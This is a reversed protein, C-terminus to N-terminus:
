SSKHVTNVFPLGAISLNMKTAMKALGETEVHHDFVFPPFILGDRHRAGEVLLVCGGVGDLPVVLGEDIIEALFRRRSPGYGEVQLYDEPADELYHRSANTERWTNRDYIFYKEMTPHSSLCNPVVIPAHTSKLHEVLTAPYFVMDVDIWLAWDEDAMARLLLQNRAMAMHSRRIQQINLRHRSGYPIPAVRPPDLKHVQIDRFYPAFTEAMELAYQYTGDTSSDEGLAITILNHPYTLSCLLRFYQDLFNRSNSIPTLVLISQDMEVGTSVNFPSYQM